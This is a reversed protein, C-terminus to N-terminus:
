TSTTDKHTVTGLAGLAEDRLQRKLIKGSATRPLPADAKHLYRPLEFRAVLLLRGKELLAEIAERQGPRFAEYGLRALGRDLDVATNM